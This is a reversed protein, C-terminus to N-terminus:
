IFFIGSAEEQKGCFDYYNARSGYGEGRSLNNPNPPTIGLFGLTVAAGEGPSWLVNNVVVFAIIRGPASHYNAEKACNIIEM